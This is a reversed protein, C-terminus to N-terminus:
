LYQRLFSVIQYHVEEPRMEIFHIFLSFLTIRNNTSHRLTDIYGFALYRRYRYSLNRLKSTITRLDYNRGANTHHSFFISVKKFCANKSKVDFIDFMINKQFNISHAILHWAYNEDLYNDLNHPM